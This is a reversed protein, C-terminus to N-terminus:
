VRERCSARGIELEVLAKMSFLRKFGKIPDIKSFSPKIAEASYLIGVQLYNALLGAVAVVLFLPLMILFAEYMLGAFMAQITNNDITTTGAERLSRKLMILIRGMMAASDFYFYTLCSLLIAVSAVEQSKAVQGKQRAEERRKPSAQETKEQDKDTEAM